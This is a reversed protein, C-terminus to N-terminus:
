RGAGSEMRTRTGWDTLADRMKHSSKQRALPGSCVLHTGAEGQPPVHDHTTLRARNM